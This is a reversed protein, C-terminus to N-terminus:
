YQSIVNPIYVCVFMNASGVAPRALICLGVSSRLKVGFDFTGGETQSPSKKARPTERVTKRLSFGTFEPEATARQRPAAM